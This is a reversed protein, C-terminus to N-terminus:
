STAIADRAPRPAGLPSRDLWCRLRGYFHSASEGPAPQCDGFLQTRRRLDAQGEHTRALQRVFAQLHLLKERIQEDPPLTMQRVRAQLAAELDEAKSKRNPNM